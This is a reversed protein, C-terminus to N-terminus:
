RAGFTSYDSQEKKKKSIIKNALKSFKDILFM